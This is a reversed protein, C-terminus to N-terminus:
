DLSCVLKPNAGVDGQIGLSAATARSLARHLCKRRLGLDCESVDANGQKSRIGSAM